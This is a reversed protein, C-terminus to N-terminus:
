ISSRIRSLSVQSIGLYSAIHRLAVRQLLQPQKVLLEEYRAAATKFQMAILREEAKILEIETIRRGWNALNLDVLYLEKLLSIPIQYLESDELLEINEYSPENCIYSKMSLVVDGQMGFWFTTQTEQQDKFARVIGSKVLYIYSEVRKDRLIIEGKKFKMLPCYPALLAISSAPLPHISSLIAEFNM